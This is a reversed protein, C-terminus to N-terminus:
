VRLPIEHFLRDTTKVHSMIMIQERDVRMRTERSVSYTIFVVVSRILLFRVKDSLLTGGLKVLSFM